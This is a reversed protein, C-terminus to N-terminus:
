HRPVIGGMQVEVNSSSRSEPPEVFCLKALWQSTWLVCELIGVLLIIGKLFILQARFAMGCMWIGRYGFLIGILGFIGWRWLNMWYHSLCIDLVLIEMGVFIICLFKWVWSFLVYFIEVGMFIIGVFIKMAMFYYGCLIEMGMFILGVCVLLVEMCM